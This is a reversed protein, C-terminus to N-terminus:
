DLLHRIVYYAYERCVVGMCPSCIRERYSHLEWVSQYIFCYIPQLRLPICVSACCNWASINGSSISYFMATLESVLEACNLGLEKLNLQMTCITSINYMGNITCLWLEQSSVNTSIRDFDRKESQLSVIVDQNTRYKDKSPSLQVQVLM